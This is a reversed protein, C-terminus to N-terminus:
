FANGFEYRNASEIENIFDYAQKRSIDGAAQDAKIKQILKEMGGNAAIFMKLGATKMESITKIRVTKM